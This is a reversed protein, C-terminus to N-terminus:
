NYINNCLHLKVKVKKDSFLIKICINWLLADYNHLANLFDTLKLNDWVSKAFAVHLIDINSLDSQRYNIVM